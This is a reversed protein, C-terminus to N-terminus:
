PTVHLSSQHPESTGHSAPCGWRGVSFVQRRPVGKSGIFMRPLWVVLFFHINGWDWGDGIYLIEIAMNTEPQKPKWSPVQCGGKHLGTVVDSSLGGINRGFGTRRPLSNVAKASVARPARARTLWTPKNYTPWQSLQNLNLTTSVYFALLLTQHLSCTTM